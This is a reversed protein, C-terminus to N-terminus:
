SIGPVWFTLRERGLCSLLLTLAHQIRPFLLTIEDQVHQWCEIRTLLNVNSVITCISPLCLCVSDCEHCCLFALMVKSLGPNEGPLGCSTSLTTPRIILRKNHAEFKVIQMKGVCMSGILTCPYVRLTTMTQTHCAAASSRAWLLMLHSYLSAYKSQHVHHRSFKTM